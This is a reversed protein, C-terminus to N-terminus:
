LQGNARLYELSRLIAEPIPPPTPLHEGVPNFGNEDSTYEVRYVVNDPGTYTFYGRAQMAEDKQGVAALHGEEEALIGNETEYLYRYGDPISDQELRIINYHRNDYLGQANGTRLTAPPTYTAASTVGTGITSATTAVVRPRTVVPRVVPRASVINKGGGGAGGSGTYDGGGGGSPGEQHRYPVDQHVYAGANDPVYAGSNDPHYQGDDSSGTSTGTRVVVPRYQAQPASLTVPILLALIALQRMKCVLGSGSHCFVPIRM